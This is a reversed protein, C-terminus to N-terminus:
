EMALLSANGGAMQLDSPDRLLVRPATTVAPCADM